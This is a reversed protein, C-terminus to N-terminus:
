GRDSFIKSLHPFQHKIKELILYTRAKESLNTASLLVQLWLGLTHLHRKHGKVSCLTRYRYMDMVEENRVVAEGIGSLNIM